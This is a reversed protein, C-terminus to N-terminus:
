SIASELLNSKTIAAKSGHRPLGIATKQNATEASRQLERFRKCNFDFLFTKFIDRPLNKYAKLKMVVKPTWRQHGRLTRPKWKNEHCTDQLIGSM